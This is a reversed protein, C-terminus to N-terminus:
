LSLQININWRKDGEYLAYSAHETAAYTYTASVAPLTVVLSTYHGDSYAGSEIKCEQSGDDTYSTLTFMTNVLPITVTWTGDGNDTYSANDQAASTPFGGNGPTNPNTMYAVNGLGIAIAPAGTPKVWVNCTCTGGDALAKQPEVAGLLAPAAVLAAGVLAANKLFSRRDMRTDM